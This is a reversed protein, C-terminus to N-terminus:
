DGEGLLQHRLFADHEGITPSPTAPKWKKRAFMWPPRMVPAVGGAPHVTWEVVGRHTLQEDAFVDAASFVPMASVGAAQLMETIEWATHQRTWKAVFADLQRKHAVRLAANEFCAKQTWPPRGLAECLARWEEESQAVITVWQDDGRCPYCEHPAWVDDANGSRHPQTGTALFSLFSDGALCAGGEAQSLDIFCGEGTRARHALAALLVVLAYMANAGDFSTLMTGPPAEPYGTLDGLGCIAGLTPAEARYDRWPGSEGFGTSSLVIVDPRVKRVKEYCLGLRALAGGKMNAVVVDSVSIIRLARQYDESNDVELVVAIKNANVSRFLHTGFRPDAPRGSIPDPQHRQRDLHNRSEVKIVQAGM